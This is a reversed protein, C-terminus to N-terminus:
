GRYKATTIKILGGQQKKIQHLLAECMVWDDHKGKVSQPKGEIWAFDFMQAVCDKIPIRKRRLHVEEALENLMQLRNIGRSGTYWGEKTKEKDSYYWNKIGLNNLKEILTLGSANREVALLPENYERYLEWAIKAQEDLSLKGNFCAVDEDTQEDCIIGVSPDERGESPDIAFAFRRSTTSPTFIRVKGGYRTDVPERCEKLMKELIDHNFFGTTKPASLAEMENRPYESERLYDPLGATDRQYTEEDRGPVVFYDWFIPIFNNKGSRADNWVQKPFSDINQKNVTSAGIFLGGKAMAPKIAAFGQEAYPHMEWEDCIVFTADTSKGADETSPVTIIKSNTAPFGMIDDQNPFLKLRFYSPHHDCIFRARELMELATRENRSQMVVKTSEFFNALWVGIATLTSSAGTQRSKFIIIYLPKRPMADRWAQVIGALEVLHVWDEWLVIQQKVRDQLFVHNCLYYLLSKRCKRWEIDALEEDARERSVLKM